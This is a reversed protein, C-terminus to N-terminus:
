VTIWLGNIYGLSLVLLFLFMIVLSLYLFIKNKILINALLIFVPFQIAIYRSIALMSGAMLPVFMWLLINNLFGPLVKKKISYYFLSLIGLFWLLNYIHIKLSGELRYDIISFPIALLPHLGLVPKEWFSQIHIFAFFDNVIYNLYFGFFLLGLPEMILSAIM